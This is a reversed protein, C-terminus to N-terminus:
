AKRPERVRAVAAELELWSRVEIFDPDVATDDAYFNAWILPIGLPRLQQLVSQNDDVFVAIKEARCEIIKLDDSPVIRIATVSVARECFYRLLDDHSLVTTTTVVTPRDGAEHWRQTVLAADPHLPYLLMATRGINAAIRDYQEKGIRPLLRGRLVDCPSQVNLKPFLAQAEIFKRPEPDAYVGMHDLGIIM